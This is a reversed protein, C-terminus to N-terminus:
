KYQSVQPCEGSEQYGNGGADDVETRCCISNCDAYQVHCMGSLAICDDEEYSKIEKENQQKKIKESHGSWVFIRLIKNYYNVYGTVEIDVDSNNRIAFTYTGNQPIEIKENFAGNEGKLYHFRGNKDVLGFDVDASSPSYTANITVTEGAAMPFGTKAPKLEGAKVTVDFKGMAREAANVTGAFCSVLLLVTLLSCLMKKM